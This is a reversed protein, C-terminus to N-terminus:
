IHLEQSITRQCAEFVFASEWSFHSRSVVMHQIVQGTAMFKAHNHHDGVAESASAYLRFNLIERPSCAGLGGVVSHAIHSHM